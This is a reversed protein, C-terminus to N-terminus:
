FAIGAKGWFSYGEAADRNSSPLEYAVGAGVMVPYEWTKAIYGVGAYAKHVIQANTGANDTNLQCSKIFGDTDGALSDSGSAAFATTALYAKNAVGYTGDRWPSECGCTKLSVEEAQKWFLNYGLDLTFGANNYAFGLIANIQNKPAVDVDLTSVNALPKLCQTDKKGVLYYHSFIPDIVKQKIVPNIQSAYTLEKLGLTRKETGEFLYKYQISGIIKLNQNRDDWLVASADSGVGLAWKSDDTRASFLYDAKAKEATPFLVAANIAAHYKSGELFRWGIQAEIDGLGSRSNSCLKAYKLAENVNDASTRTICKGVFLDGLEVSDETPTRTAVSESPQIPEISFNIDNEVHVFPIALAFFIKDAWKNFRHFYDLRAGYVTQRPAFKVAGELNNANSGAVHLLLDNVVQPRKEKLLLLNAGSSLGKIVDVKNTGDAGFNQGLNCENTSRGYFGTVELNGGIRSLKNNSKMEHFTTFAPVHSRCMLTNFSTRNNSNSAYSTGVMALAVLLGKLGKNM